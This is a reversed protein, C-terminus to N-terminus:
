HFLLTIDSVVTVQYRNLEPQSSKVIKRQQVVDQDTITFLHKREEEQEEWLTMQEKYQLVATEDTIQHTIM